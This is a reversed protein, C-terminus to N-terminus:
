NKKKKHLKVKSVATFYVIQEKQTYAVNQLLCISCVDTNCDSLTIIFLNKYKTNDIVANTTVIERDLPYSLTYDTGPHPILIEKSISIYPLQYM